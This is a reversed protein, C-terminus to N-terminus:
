LTRSYTPTSIRNTSDTRPTITRHSGLWAQRNSIAPSCALTITPIAPRLPIVRAHRWIRRGALSYPTSLHGLRARDPGELRPTGSASFDMGHKSVVLQARSRRRPIATQDGRAPPPWSTSAISIARVASPDAARQRCGCRTEWNRRLWSFEVGNYDIKAPLMEAPLANGKGDM